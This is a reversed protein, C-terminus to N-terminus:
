YRLILKFLAVQVPESCRLKLVRRRAIGFRDWMVITEYAGLKGFSRFRESQWTKGSDQSQTMSVQPDSGQGTTNGVGVQMDLKIQSLPLRELEQKIVTTIAEREILLGNDDYYDNSMTYVKGSKYDGVLTEGKFNTYCNSLHRGSTGQDTRSSVEHVYGTETDVRFSQNAKPINLHYFYKGRDYFVYATSDTLDLTKLYTNFSANTLSKINYGQMQYIGTAGFENTGLFIVSQNSLAIAYESVSGYNLLVNSRMQFPFPSAGTNTYIACRNTTFVYLEGNCAICGNVLEGSDTFQTYQDATYSSFDNLDTIHLANTTQQTFCAYGNLYTLRKPAPAPFDIDTITVFSSNEFTFVYSKKGDTLMLQTPNSIISVPGSSTELTGLNFSRGDPTVSYFTSDVVVYWKNLLSFIGRVSNGSFDKKLNLGPTPALYFPVKGESTPSLNTLFWNKVSLQCFQDDPAKDFQAIVNFEAM